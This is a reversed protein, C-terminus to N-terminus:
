KFRCTIVYSSTGGASWQIDLNLGRCFGAADEKLWSPLYGKICVVLANKSDCDCSNIHM